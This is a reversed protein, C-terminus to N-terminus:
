WGAYPGTLIEPDDLLQKFGPSIKKLLKINKSVEDVAVEIKGNRRKRIIGATYESGYGNPQGIGNHITVYADWILVTNDESAILFKAKHQKTKNYFALIEEASSPNILGRTEKLGDKWGGPRYDKYLLTTTKEVIYQKFSIM